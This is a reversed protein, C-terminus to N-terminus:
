WWVASAVFSGLEKSAILRAALKFESIRERTLKSDFYNGLQTPYVRSSFHPHLPHKRQDGFGMDDTDPPSYVDTLMVFTMTHKLSVRLPRQVSEPLLILGM